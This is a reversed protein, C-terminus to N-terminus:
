GLTELGVDELFISVFDSYEAQGLFFPDVCEVGVVFLYALVDGEDLECGVHDGFQSSLFLAINNYRQGM